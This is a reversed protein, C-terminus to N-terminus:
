ERILDLLNTLQKAQEPTLRDEPTNMGDWLPDIEALLSLGRPTIRIKFNRKDDNCRTKEILDKQVLKDCLRTLNPTPDLMRKKVDNMIMQDKSGRLIRLVNYQQQSIDFPKLVRNHIRLLWNSTFVISLMAKHQESIFRSKIEQQIKPM